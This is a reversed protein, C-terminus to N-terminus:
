KVEEEFFGDWDLLLAELAPVIILAKWLLTIPLIMAIIMMAFLSIITKDKM